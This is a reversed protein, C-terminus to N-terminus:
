MFLDMFANEIVRVSGVGDVTAVDCRCLTSSGSPLTGLFAEASLMIRQAQRRSVRQAALDHTAARKVEVFVHMTGRRAILDIEGGPGRWRTRLIDYGQREMHRAVIDEAALGAHYNTQGRQRRQFQPSSAFDFPM